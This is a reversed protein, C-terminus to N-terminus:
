KANRQDDGEMAAVRRLFFVIAAPRYRGNILSPQLSQLSLGAGDDADGVVNAIPQDRPAERHAFEADDTVSDLDTAGNLQRRRRRGIHQEDPAEDLLLAHTIKDLRHLDEM